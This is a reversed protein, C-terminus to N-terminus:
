NNEECWESIKEEISPFFREFYTNQIEEFSVNDAKMDSLHDIFQSDTTYVRFTDKHSNFAVECKIDWGGRGKFEHSFYLDVEYEEYRLLYPSYHEITTKM